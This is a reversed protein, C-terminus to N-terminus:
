PHGHCLNFNKPSFGHILSNRLGWLQEALSHYRTEFYEVVFSQYKVRNQEEKPYRYGALAETGSFTCGLSLYAGDDNLLLPIGKIFLRRFNQAFNAIGDDLSM